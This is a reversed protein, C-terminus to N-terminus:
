WGREVIKNCSLIMLDEGKWEKEKRWGERTGVREIERERVWLLTRRFNPNPNQIKPGHLEIKPRFDV